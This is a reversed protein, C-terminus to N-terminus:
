PKAPRESSATRRKLLKKELRILNRLAAQQIKKELPSSELEIIPPRKAEGEIQLEDLEIVPRSIQLVFLLILM